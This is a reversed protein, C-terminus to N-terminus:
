ARSIIMMVSSSAYVKMSVFLPHTSVTSFSPHNELLFFSSEDRLIWASRRLSPIISMALCLYCDSRIITWEYRLMRWCALHFTNEFSEPWTAQVRRM